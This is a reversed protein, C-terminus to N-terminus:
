LHLRCDQLVYTMALSGRNYIQSEKHAYIEQDSQQEGAANTTGVSGEESIFGSYKFVQGAIFGGQDNGYTNKVTNCMEGILMEIDDFSIGPKLKVVNFLMKAGYPISVPDFM